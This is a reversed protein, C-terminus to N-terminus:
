PCGRGSGTQISGPGCPGPNPTRPLAPIAIRTRQPEAQFRSNAREATLPGPHTHTHAGRGSCLAPSPASVGEGGRRRVAGRGLGRVRSPQRARSRAGCHWIRSRSCSPKASQSPSGSRNGSPHQQARARARVDRPARREAEAQKARLPPAHRLLRPRATGVLQGRDGTSAVVAERARGQGARGCGRGAVWAM